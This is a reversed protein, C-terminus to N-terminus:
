GSANWRRERTASCRKKAVSPGLSSGLDCAEQRPMENSLREPLASLTM